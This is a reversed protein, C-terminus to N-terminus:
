CVRHCRLGRTSSSRMASSSEPSAEAKVHRKVGSNDVGVADIHWIPAAPDLTASYTYSGAYNGSPASHKTRAPLNSGVAAPFTGQGRRERGRRRTAARNASDGHRRTTRMSSYVLAVVSVILATAVFIVMMAVIISGNEDRARIGVRTM